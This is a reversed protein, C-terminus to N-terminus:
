APKSKTEDGFITIARFKSRPVDKRAHKRKSINFVPLLREIRSSNMLFPPFFEGEVPEKESDRPQTGSHIQPNLHSNM